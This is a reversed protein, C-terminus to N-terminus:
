SWEKTTAEVEGDGNCDECIETSGSAYYGTGDCAGCTVFAAKTEALASPANIVTRLEAIEAKMAERIKEDNFEGHPLRADWTAVQASGEAPQAAVPEAYLLTGSPPMGNKWHVITSYNPYMVVQGVPEPMVGDPPSVEAALRAADSYADRAGLYIREINPNDAAQRKAEFEDSLARLKASLDGATASGPAARYVVRKRLVSERSADFEAKSVDAWTSAFELQQVQYIPQQEPAAAIDSAPAARSAAIADRVQNLLSGVAKGEASRRFITTSDIIAEIKDLLDLDAAPTLPPTAPNM